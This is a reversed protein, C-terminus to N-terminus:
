FLKRPLMNVFNIKLANECLVKNKRERSHMSTLEPNMELGVGTWGFQELLATNSNHYSHASGIELYTGNKKGDLAALVVLDQCVQSFNKEIEDCGEFRFRLDYDSKDYRISSEWDPGSGLTTLNTEILKFYYENLNDGYEDKLIWDQHKKMINSSKSVLFPSLWIGAKYNNSKIM